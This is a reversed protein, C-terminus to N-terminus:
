PRVRAESRNKPDIESAALSTDDGTTLLVLGESADDAGVGEGGGFVGALRFASRAGLAGPKVGVLAGAFM